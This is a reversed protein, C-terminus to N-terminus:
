KRVGRELTLKLIYDTGLGEPNSITILAFKGNELEKVFDEFERESVNAEFFPRYFKHILKKNDKIISLLEEKEKTLDVIQAKIKEYNELTLVVHETEEKSTM